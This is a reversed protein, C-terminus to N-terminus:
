TAPEERYVVVLDFGARWLRPGEEYADRDNEFYVQQVAVDGMTGEVGDIARRVVDALTKVSSYGGAADEQDWADFQIRSMATGTPGGLNRVRDGSIRQYTLAPFTAAQPLRLPYIRASDGSGIISSISSQALLYTRIAKEILM